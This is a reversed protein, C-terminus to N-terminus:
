VTQPQLRLAAGTTPDAGREVLLQALEVHGEEYALHLPTRRKSDLAAVEAGHEVLLQALGVHGVASAWHLPTWGDADRTTIDAGHEVLLLATM